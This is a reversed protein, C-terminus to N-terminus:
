KGRAELEKGKAVWEAGKAELLKGCRASNAQTEAPSMAALADVAAAMVDVSPSRGEVRGAFYFATMAGAQAVEPDTMGSLKLGVAVCKIDDSTADRASATAPLALCAALGLAIFSTKTCGM